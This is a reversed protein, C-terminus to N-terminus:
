IGNLVEKKIVKPSGRMGKEGAKQPDLTRLGNAHSHRLLMVFLDNSFTFDNLILIRNRPVCVLKRDIFNSKSIIQGLTIIVAQRENSSKKHALLEV